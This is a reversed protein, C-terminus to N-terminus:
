KNSGNDCIKAHANDYTLFINFPRIDGHHIGREELFCCGM